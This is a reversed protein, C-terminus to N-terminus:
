HRLAIPVLLDSFFEEDRFQRDFITEMMDEVLQSYRVPQFQSQIGNVLVKGFVLQGRGSLRM